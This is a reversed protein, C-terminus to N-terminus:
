KNLKTCQVCCKSCVMEYVGLASRYLASLFYRNMLPSGTTSGLRFLLCTMKREWLGSGVIMKTEYMGFEAVLSILVTLWTDSRPFLHHLPKCEDSLADRTFPVEYAATGAQLPLRSTRPGPTGLRSPTTRPPPPGPTRGCHCHHRCM